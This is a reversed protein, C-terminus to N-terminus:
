KKVGVILLDTKIRPFFCPLIQLPNRNMWFANLYETKEVLFNAKRFLLELMPMTFTHLHSHYDGRDVCWAPNRLYQIGIANPTTVILRGSPKLQHHCFRIFESPNEVHELIEGAIITDFKKRLDKSKNLDIKFDPNGAVDLTYIKKDHHAEILLQHVFGEAAGIDLIESGQIHLSIRRFRVRDSITRSM